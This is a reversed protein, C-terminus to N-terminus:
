EGFYDESEALLDDAQRRAITNSLTLAPEVPDADLVERLLRDHLTRDFTLRAYHRAFEVKAMLNRGGSLAIAREFHFRGSEPDGGLSSPIQSRIVGLYLHAQGHEFSEGLTLVREMVTEIKPLDAVAEWDDSSVQLWGAWAAGYAYLAPLDDKGTDDVAAVFDDYPGFERDCIEPRRQCLARRAYDRAKDALRRARDPDEVFVAAYSGYLRSGTILLDRDEPAEAILGDILLLYAPAGARVTEPDDQDLIAASLNDALGRTATAVCGANLIPGLLCLLFIVTPSRLPLKRTTLM